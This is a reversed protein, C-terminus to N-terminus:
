SKLIPKNLSQRYVKLAPVDYFERQTGHNTLVVATLKDGYMCGTDLCTAYPSILHACQPDHGYYIHMPGKWHQCWHEGYGPVPVHQLAQNQDQILNGTTTFDICICDKFERGPIIGAHVVMASQKPLTITYPMQCFHQYEEETMQQLFAFGGWDQHGADQYIQRIRMNHEDVDGRVSYINNAIMFKLVQTAKEGRFANGTLIVVDTPQWQCKALLQQLEDYCGCVDGIIIVRNETDLTLHPTKIPPLSAM